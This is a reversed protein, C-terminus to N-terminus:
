WRTYFFTEETVGPPQPDIFQGMFIRVNNTGKTVVDLGSSPLGSSPNYPRFVDGWTDKLFIRPSRQDGSYRFGSVELVINPLQEQDWGGVVIATGVTPDTNPVILFHGDSVNVDILYYGGVAPVGYTDGKIFAAKASLKSRLTGTGNVFNSGTYGTGIFNVTEQLTFTKCTISASAVLNTTQM